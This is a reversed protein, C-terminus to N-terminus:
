EGPCSLGTSLTRPNELYDLVIRDLCADGNGLAGHGYHNSTVLTSGRLKQATEVSWPYPTLLDQTGGIVLVPVRPTFEGNDIPDRSVPWAACSLSLLGLSAFTPSLAEFRKMEAEAEALTLPAVTDDACHITINASPDVEPGGPPMGPMDPTAPMEPMGPMAMMEPMAPMAEAAEAELLLGALFERGATSGLNSHWFAAFDDLQGLATLEDVALSFIREPDAPCQLKGARCDAFFAQHAVLLADFQGEVLEVFSGSPPVAADLIIARAHEPFQRAYQSALRTGYSIGLFALQDHGLSSRIADIDRVVANTSLHDFLPRRLEACRGGDRQFSALVATVGGVEYVDAWDDTVECDLGQSDGVGRPDFGVIDYGAFMARLGAAAAEVFAKGPAGPGGPNVFLVGRYRHRPDALVRNIAISVTGREPAARDIPVMVEACEVAGCQRFVLSGTPREPVGSDGSADDM